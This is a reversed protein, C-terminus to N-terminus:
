TFRLTVLKFSLRRRKNVARRLIPNPNAEYRDRSWSSKKRGWMPSEKTM